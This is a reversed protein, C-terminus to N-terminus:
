PLFIGTLPAHMVATMVGAMGLLTFNKEPIYIGINYMNWLRAFFFAELDVSLYRLLSREAVDAVAM